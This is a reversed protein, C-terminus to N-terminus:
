FVQFLIISQSIDHKNETAISLIVGYVLQVLMKRAAAIQLFIYKYSSLNHNQNWDIRM